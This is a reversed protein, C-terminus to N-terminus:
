ITKNCITWRKLSEKGECKLCNDMCPECKNTLSSNYFGPLCGKICMNKYLTMGDACSTCENPATGFCSLCSEYCHTCRSSQDMRFMGKGCDKYCKFGKFVEENKCTTCLDYKYMCKGCRDSCKSCHQGYTKYWGSPCQRVCRNQHFLFKVPCTHCQNELPGFCSACSQHCPKCILSKHDKYYRRHCAKSCTHREM